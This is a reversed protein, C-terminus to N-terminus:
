LKGWLTATESCWGARPRARITRTKINYREFVSRTKHGLIKMAVGESVGSRRYSRAAMRRFDHPLRRESFHAAACAAHWLDYPFERIPRGNGHFGNRLVSGSKRALERTREDWARLAALAEPPLYIVCGEGNRTTEPDRTITGTDAGTDPDAGADLNLQRRELPLLEGRRAGIWGVLIVYPILWDNGVQRANAIETRLSALLRVSEEDSFFVLRTNNAVVTPFFPVQAVKGTQFGLRLMRKLAAVENKFTQAAAGAARRDTIHAQMRAHTITRVYDSGFVPDLHTWRRDLTELDQGKNEYDAPTDDYLERLRVTSVAAPTLGNSVDGLREHLIARAETKTAAEAREETRRGHHTYRLYFTHGRKRVAGGGRTSRRLRPPRSRTEPPTEHRPESM